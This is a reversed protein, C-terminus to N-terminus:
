RVRVIGYPYGRLSLQEIPDGDASMDLLTTRSFDADTNRVYTKGDVSLEGGGGNSLPLSTVPTAVRSSGLEFRWWQWVAGSWVANFDEARIPPLATEDLVKIYAANGGGSVLGGAAYGGISAPDVTYDPDFGSDGAKVRLLCPAAAVDSGLVRNQTADWVGTAFYVDGKADKVSDWLGGCREERVVRTVRDNKTDLSILTSFPATADATSHTAVILLEDGRFTPDPEFRTVPYDADAVGDISFSGLVVMAAPDWIVVQLEAADIVYAKSESLFPVLGPDRWMYGLGYNALDLTEREVFRADSTIDYRTITPAEDLGVAFFSGKEPGFISSASSVELVQGYDIAVSRELSPVLAVYSSNGEAGFVSAGVAYLPSEDPAPREDPPTEDPPTAEPTAPQLIVADDGSCAQAAVSLLGLVGFRICFHAM